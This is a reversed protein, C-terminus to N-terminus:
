VVCEVREIGSQGMKGVVTQEYGHLVADVRGQELFFDSGITSDAHRDAHAAALDRGAMEVGGRAAVKVDAM